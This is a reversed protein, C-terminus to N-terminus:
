SESIQLVKTATPVDNRVVSRTAVLCKFDDNLQLFVASRNGVLTQMNTISHAM